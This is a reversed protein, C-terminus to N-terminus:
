VNELVYGFMWLAFMNFLIHEFNAHMFMYTIFQFPYFKQSAFYHLGLINSLDFGTSNKVALTALFMIGNIILLNKVVPPLMRFGQPRYQQYSM